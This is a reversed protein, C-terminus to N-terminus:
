HFGANMWTRRGSTNFELERILLWVWACRIDCDVLRLLRVRVCPCPWFADWAGPLCWPHRRCRINNGQIVTNPPDGSICAQVGMWHHWRQLVFSTWIRCSISCWVGVHRNRVKSSRTPCLFSGDLLPLLDIWDCLEGELVPWLLLVCPFHTFDCPTLTALSPSHKLFKRPVHGDSVM